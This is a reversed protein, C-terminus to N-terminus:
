AYHGQRLVTLSYSDAGRENVDRLERLIAAFFEPITADSYLLEARRLAIEVKEAGDAIL